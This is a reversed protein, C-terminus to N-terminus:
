NNVSIRIIQKKIIVEELEPIYHKIVVEVSTVKNSSKYFNFSISVKGKITNIAKFINKYKEIFIKKNIQGDQVTSILMNKEPLVISQKVINKNFKANETSQKLINSKTSGLSFMLWIM